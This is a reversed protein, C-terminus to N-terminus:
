DADRRRRLASHQTASCHQSNKIQQRLRRLDSSLREIPLGQPHKLQRVQRRHELPQEIRRARIDKITEDFRGAASDYAVLILLPVGTIVVVLVLLGVGALVSEAM